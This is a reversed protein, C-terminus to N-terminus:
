GDYSVVVWGLRPIVVIDYEYGTSYYAGPTSVARSLSQALAESASGCQLGRLVNAKEPPPSTQWEDYRFYRGNDRGVRAERFFATGQAQIAQLTSSSVKFIGTGCGERLGSRGDAFVVESVEIPAPVGARYGEVEMHLCARQILLAAVGLAVLITAILRASRRLLPRM